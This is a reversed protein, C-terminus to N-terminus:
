PKAGFMRAVFDRRFDFIRELDPAVLFRNVLGAGLPVPLAYEVIDRMETGKATERFEHIHHWRRYPGRLQIDTFRHPPEFSEIRTVWRIPIGHVRLKYEILAGEEMRPPLSVIQFHLSDPTIRQLNRPDSFFPFVAALPQPVVQERELRFSRM